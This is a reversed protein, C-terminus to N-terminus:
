FYLQIKKAFLNPNRTESDRSFMPRERSVDDATRLSKCVNKAEDLDVTKISSGNLRIKKGKNVESYFFQLFLGFDLDDHKQRAASRLSKKLEFRWYV